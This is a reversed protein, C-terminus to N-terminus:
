EILTSKREGKKANWKETTANNHNCENRMGEKLKVDHMLQVNQRLPPDNDGLKCEM